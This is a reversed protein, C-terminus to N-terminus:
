PDFMRRDMLTGHAFVVAPGDGRDTIVTEPRRRYRETAGERASEPM